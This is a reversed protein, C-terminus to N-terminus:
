DGTYPVYSGTTINGISVSGKGGSGGKWNDYFGICPRGIGGDANITGKRILNKYFINISGGGSAGGTASTGTITTENRIVYSSDVGKSEIIGNNEFSNTYIVLLGGTGNEKYEVYSSSKINGSELNGTKNGIGGTALTTWSTGSGNSNVGNM